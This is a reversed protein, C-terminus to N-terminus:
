APHALCCKIQAATSIVVLQIRRCAGPRYLNHSPSIFCCRRPPEIELSSNLPHLPPFDLFVPSPPPILHIRLALPLGGEPQQHNSGPLKIFSDWPKKATPKQSAGSRCIIPAAPGPPTFGGGGGGAPAKHRQPQTGALHRTKAAKSPARHPL